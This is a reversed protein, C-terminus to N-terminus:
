NKKQNLKGKWIRTDDNYNKQREGRVLNRQNEVSEEFSKTQIEM